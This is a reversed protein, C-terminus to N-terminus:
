HKTFVNSRVDKYSLTVIAICPLKFAKRYRELSQGLAYVLPSEGNAEYLM